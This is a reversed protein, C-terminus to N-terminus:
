PLSYRLAGLPPGRGPFFANVPASHLTPNSRPESCGSSRIARAISQSFAGIQYRPSSPVLQLSLFFSFSFWFFGNDLIATERECRRGPLPSSLPDNRTPGIRFSCRSQPSPLPPLSGGAMPFFFFVPFPAGPVTNPQFVGIVVRPTAMTKTLFFPPAPTGVMRPLCIDMRLSPNRQVCGLSCPGAGSKTGNYRVRPLGALTFVIVRFVLTFWCYFVHFFLLVTSPPPPYPVLPSCRPFRWWPRSNPLKTKQFHPLTFGSPLTTGRCRTFPFLSPPHPSFFPAPLGSRLGWLPVLTHKDASWPCLLFLM